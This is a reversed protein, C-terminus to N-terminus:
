VRIPNQLYIIGNEIGNTLNMKSKLKRLRKSEILYYEILVIQNNTDLKLKLVHNSNRGIDKVELKDISYCVEMYVAEYTFLPYELAYDEIVLRLEHKELVWLRHKQLVRNM